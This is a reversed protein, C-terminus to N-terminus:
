CGVAREFVALFRMLKESRIESEPHLRGDRTLDSGRRRPIGGPTLPQLRRCYQTITDTTPKNHYAM